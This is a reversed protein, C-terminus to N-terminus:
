KEGKLQKIRERFYNSNMWHKSLYLELEEIRAEKIMQEVKWWLMAIIEERSVESRRTADYHKEFEKRLADEM